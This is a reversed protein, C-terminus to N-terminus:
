TPIQSIVEGARNPGRGRELNYQEYTIRTRPAGGNKAFKSAGTATKTQKPAFVRMSSEANLQSTAHSSLM